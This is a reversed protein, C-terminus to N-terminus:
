MARTPRTSRVSRKEQMSARRPLRNVGSPRSSSDTYSRDEGNNSPVPAIPRSTDAVGPAPLGQEPEGHNLCPRPLPDRGRTTVQDSFKATFHNGSTPNIAAPHGLNDEGEKPLVPQIGENNSTVHMHCSHPHNVHLEQHKGLVKNGGDGKGDNGEPNQLTPSTTATLIRAQERWTPAKTLLDMIKVGLLNRRVEFLQIIQDSDKFM